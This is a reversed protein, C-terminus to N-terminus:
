TMPLTRRARMYRLALQDPVAAVPMEAAVRLVQYGPSRQLVSGVDARSAVQRAVPGVTATLPRRMVRTCSKPRRIASGSSLKVAVPSPTAPKSSAV